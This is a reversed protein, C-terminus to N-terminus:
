YNRLLGLVRFQGPVSGSSVSRLQRSKKRNSTALSWDNHCSTLGRRGWFSYLPSCTVPQMMRRKVGCRQVGSCWERRVVKDTLIDTLRIERKSDQSKGWIASASSPSRNFIVSGTLHFWKILWNFARKTMSVWGRVILLNGSPPALIRFLISFSRLCSETGFDVGTLFVMPFGFLFDILTSIGTLFVTVLM